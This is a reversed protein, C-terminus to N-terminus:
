AGAGSNAEWILEAVLARLGLLRPPAGVVCIRRLLQEASALLEAPDQGVPTPGDLRARRPLLCSAEDAASDIGLALLQRSSRPGVKTRKSGLWSPPADFYGCSELWRKSSKRRWRSWAREANRQLLQGIFGCTVATLDIQRHGTSLCSKCARLAPPLRLRDSTMAGWHCRPPLIWVRSRKQDKMSREGALPGQPARAYLSKLLVQWTLQAM